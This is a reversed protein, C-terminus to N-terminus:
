CALPKKEYWNTSSIDTEVALPTVIWPWHKRVDITMVKESYALVDQLEKRYTDMLISDHIQTIIKTKMKYKKLWNNIQIISWLMIHFSPGQIPWNMLDNYSHVGHQVFGTSLPFWGRQEYLKWWVDKETCWHPFREGFRIEVNKIHTKFAEFDHIGKSALHDYMCTGDATKIEARHIQTWINQSCRKYTSGYLVPFVFGNKAFTRAIKSVEPLECLFCEAAMDRHIDLKEDSAYKVMSPDHWFNAAGRFELASYDREILDYDTGRPIFSRRILKAQKPDRTPQNQLSPDDISSRYTKAFHLNMSPHVFGDPEVHTRLGVLYTGRSKKLKECNLYKKIFPYEVDELAEINTKPRGTKTRNKCEVGLIDFIVTGLQAKSGLNAEVGFKKKWTRWVEDQQLEAEMSKIKDGTQVIVRDLYEVDIKMGNEEIDAFAAAGEMLLRFADPNSPKM